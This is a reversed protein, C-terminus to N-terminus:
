AAGGSPKANRSARFVGGVTFLGMLMVFTTWYGFAPIAPWRDHAAGLALMVWIAGHASSLLGIAILTFIAGVAEFVVSSPTRDPTTTM